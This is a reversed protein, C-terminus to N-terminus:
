KAHAQMRVAFEKHVAPEYTDIKANLPLTILEQPVFIASLVDTSNPQLGVVKQNNNADEIIVSVKKASQFPIIKSFEELINKANIGTPRNQVLMHVDRQEIVPYAEDGKVGDRLNKEIWKVGKLKGGNQLLGLVTVDHKAGFKIRPTWLKIDSKGTKSVWNAQKTLHKSALTNLHNVMYTRALYESNEIVVPYTHLADFKQSINVVMHISAIPAEGAQRKNKRHTGKNEDIVTHDQITPDVLRFLINAFDGTIQIKQLSLKAEGLSVVTPSKREKQDLQTFLQKASPVQSPFYNYATMLHFQGIYVYRSISKDM